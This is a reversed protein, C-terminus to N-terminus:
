GSDWGVWDSLYSIALLPGAVAVDSPATRGPSVQCSAWNVAPRGNTTHSDSSERGLRDATLKSYISAM